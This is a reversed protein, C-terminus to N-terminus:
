SGRYSSYAFPSVLLPVHYHEDPRDVTFRVPVRDLFVRTAGSDAFYAGVHFILEYSGAIFAEGECLPGHARGDDNTVFDALPAAAVDDGLRWLEVRLGAAPGGRTTDLVHTTLAGM